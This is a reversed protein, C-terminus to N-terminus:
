SSHHAAILESSISGGLWSARLTQLHWTGTQGHGGTSPPGAASEATLVLVAFEIQMNIDVDFRCAVLSILCDFFPLLRFAGYREAIRIGIREGEIYLELVGKVLPAVRIVLM